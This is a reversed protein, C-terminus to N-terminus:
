KQWDWSENLRTDTPLSLHIFNSNIYYILQGYSGHRTDKIHEYVDRLQAKPTTFDVACKPTSPTYLHDSGSSGGVANNLAISRKGSTIVVPGFIDRIPQLFIRSLYYMKLRDEDTLQIADALEPFQKSVVFEDVSFNATLKM